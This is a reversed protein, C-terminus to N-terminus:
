AVFNHHVVRIRQQIYRLLVEETEASMEFQGVVWNKLSYWHRYDQSALARLCPLRYLVNRESLDQGGGAASWFFLPLELSNEGIRGM